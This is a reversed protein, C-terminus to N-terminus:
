SCGTTGGCTECKLCTGNRVMTFNGCEPCSEGVYGKMRAEARKEAVTEVAPAAFAVGGMMAPSEALEGKLATAGQTFQAYSGSRVVMLKDTKSRVLGKSVVSSSAPSGGGGPAKDQAVGGGLVTAGIEDPSVHALDNRGLYSIALERFVYDLISTANKIANNGQVLGAPEFRTFTFAEVYEELPVGYQLGLSIAIAFNNMLSRFAAGEKHMDIFIEGIRGDDYEGTHLYVKHGGVVAKQTYGKRRDPLKDRERIREVREIVREVIREAVMSARATINQSLLNDVAEDDEDDNEILQSNLPQSLKSGDRYLANAKLGLRWSLMYADKCDEVSADNAMNITKSIAGSIFPQSAAMMRIHSDVSLYRKGLRGCANACDFVAYHEKKLHPAGELTMAGCAHVNAAEIDAKSFGLFALLDFNQEDLKEPPVKLAGTLFDVGLSWKNFVFKIDFASALAAEIKALAAADFGKGRLTALNVGPAQGLSAHGVAYAIMEAIKAENYGLARLAEPVARNIIKFYGGGALKKFKVLAFDPEIGTTDCDMVLGITGTPAVVSVQANRFGHQEGLTLADAWATQAAESLQSWNSGANSLSLHDLPTPAVSLKEYGDALGDAARKHNRIVRLMSEANPKHGPFAGAKGAIEASTAYARGTMIASLAGCIARGEDSDYAIGSSMLLGGINAFGLGLTRYDYSLRAIEKSPFQAMLVSIELTLTWLRVAHEYAVVDFVKTTPDRFQLLNLSALNCATDDLFMYESCNHVIVGNACFHHTAPETLDFVDEEGALEFSAIRDSLRDEYVGVEANLRALAGCKASAPDFGIEREFILRSSRSIRLSHMQQVPYAKEGGRGDPLRAVLEGARRNAYLKAKIGFSLLLLQVQRLLEISTSDLGVYQSKEGHNAVTGDATFLGRLVAALTPRDLEYVADTFRKRESGEDLTALLKFVEVVPKSGFALRSGTAGDVVSVGDNRGVSGVAKLLAKEENLARAVTELVRREQAHMTLIVVEQERGSITSRVLCGDGVSLGVGLALDPAMSKRGFGAGQLMVVDDSTLDKAAVGGRNETLVVHDETLRLRYGAKTTLWFVPKRGTPFIRTVLHPQGDAGIVRASKGVLSEIRQLGEATAVLTDGTVCPNSARIPGSVPCTHWDNITTHYQLGPDASAWAAYGIRDWLDRAKLTKSPKGDLRRTLNWDGDTEVAQLFADTVRVSNNSNQGSVTLYAESEWDTDYTDFEVDRFGQRAYQIIRKILSDPVDDRRAAKVERKLAPNKEITFCDDGAGECNVCARMIAKLRRKVIKSGTVMAAVKQEEKVKWDIFAEIDPHDVDVVVMKAARRTTGGSKIAGAARDGIKLFSMLGSSRGGGSLKENEGRLLSFNAGTGSGYKFLRAERVWLDMIGGENVLDDSVSQIFCAHPQPHEYASKSKTLKGTEFDVYFHGQGPGDVGYAWHLGTNFWQPSNPAALQRALMYRMEDLYARADEESDFYGGKWGWYTWAGALRDFVQKASHESGYREAKPLQELAAEDPISRWLFSPVSTEEVKKLRAPIGAKRFYKQALVDAAVQSWGEPIEINDLSFVVSGDPNRIESKTTQFGILAYPSASGKTYHREIRM